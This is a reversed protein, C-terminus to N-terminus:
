IPLCSLLGQLKRLVFAQTHPDVDEITTANFVSITAYCGSRITALEDTLQTKGCSEVDRTGESPVTIRTFIWSISSVTPCNETGPYNVNLTTGPPLIPDESNTLFTHLFTLTLNDYTAAALSFKSTPDTILTTYSIQAATAGSFAISPFGLLAGAAAARRHFRQDPDAGAAPFRCVYVTASGTIVSGLNDSVPKFEIM